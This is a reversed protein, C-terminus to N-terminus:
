FGGDLYKNKDYWLSHMQTCLDIDISIDSETKLFNQIPEIAPQFITEAPISIIDHEDFANNIMLITYLTCQEEYMSEALKRYKQYRKLALGSRPVEICFIQRQKFRDLKNHIRLWHYEGFHGCLVNGTDPVSDIQEYRINEISTFHATKETSNTYAELGCRTNFRKDTALMNSFHNGGSGPSFLVFINRTNNM